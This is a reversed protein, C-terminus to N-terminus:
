QRARLSSLRPTPVGSVSGGVKVRVQLMVFAAVAWVPAGLVRLLAAGGVVRALSLAVALREGKRVFPM